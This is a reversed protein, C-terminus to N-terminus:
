FNSIVNTLIDAITNPNSADYARAHTAEAIKQLAKTDAKAGYAITFVRVPDKDPDSITNVLGELGPGGTTENKGDTLVVIANIASPDYSARLKEVAKGITIYLATAADPSLKAVNAEIHSRHTTGDGEKAGMPALDDDTVHTASFHWLGVRDSDTFGDLLPGHAQKVLDLKSLEKRIRPQDKGNRDMSGSTDMLILVNARKRLKRWVTLLEDLVEGSPAQLAEPLQVDPLAGRGRPFNATPQHSSTRFGLYAFRAQAEKSALFRQFDDAVAGKAPSLGTLKIYPHDSYITGGGSDNTPYFAVLKTQPAKRKECGSENSRSGCPYGENYAVVSSEEATVASIYSTAQRDDDYRRLNALFTLTTDGYHVAAKEIASVREQNATDKLDDLVLESTTGTQTHFSAITANLGSTSTEPNTKGLKYDPEKALASFEKWSILKEDPWGRKKAIPEPMAITLPSTVIPKGASQPLRSPTGKGAAQQRAIQLWAQSAPSWVDPAPEDRSTEWGNALAKTATGSDVSSVAVRVCQGHSSRAQYDDALEKLIASKETSSAISLTQTPRSCRALQPAASPPKSDGHGLGAYTGAGGAILAIVIGITIAPKRTLKWRPKVLPQQSEPQTEPREEPGAGPDAGPEGRRPWAALSENEYETLGARITDRQAIAANKEVARSQNQSKLSDIQQQLAIRRRRETDRDERLTELEETLGAMQELAANTANNLERILLTNRYEALMRHHVNHPKTRACYLELLEGYQRLFAAAAGDQLNAREQAEKILVEVFRLPPINPGESKANQWTTVKGKGFGYMDALANTSLGTMEVLGHVVQKFTSLAERLLREEENEGDFVDLQQDAM